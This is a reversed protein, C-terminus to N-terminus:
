ADWLGRWTPTPLRFALRLRGDDGGDLVWTWDGEQFVVQMWGEDMEFWPRDRTGTRAGGAGDRYSVLPGYRDSVLVRVGHRDEMRVDLILPIDDARLSSLDRWDLDSVSRLLAKRARPKAGTM